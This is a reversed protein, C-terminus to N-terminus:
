IPLLLFVFTVAAGVASGELVLQAVKRRDIARLAPDVKEVEGVRSGFNEVGLAGFAM